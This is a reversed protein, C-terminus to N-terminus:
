LLTHAETHRTSEFCPSHYSTKHIHYQTSRTMNAQRCSDVNVAVMQGDYLLCVHVRTRVCVCVCQITKYGGAGDFDFLFRFFNFPVSGSSM